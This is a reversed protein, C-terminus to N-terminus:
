RLGKSQFVRAQSLRGKPWRLILLCSNAILELAASCLPGPRKSTRNHLRGYGSGRSFRADCFYRTDLRTYNLIVSVFDDDFGFGHRM